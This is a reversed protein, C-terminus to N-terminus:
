SRSSRARASDYYDRARKCLSQALREFRESYRYNLIEEPTVEFRKLEELPLYVRGRQADNRVDRLINTLQLAKGLRVAYERCAPQTYGFVEISLLGVVSAVRYCYLELEEITAYRNTDLDMEVGRILEDFHAFPLKYQAAVPQLERNVAFQPEQGSCARRIDRAGLPWLPEASTLLCAKTMPLTM